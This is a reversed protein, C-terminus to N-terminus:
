YFLHGLTYAGEIWPACVRLKVKRTSSDYIARIWPDISMQVPNATQMCAPVSPLYNCRENLQRGGEWDKIREKRASLM